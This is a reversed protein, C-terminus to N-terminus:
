RDAAFSWVGLRHTVCRRLTPTGIHGLWGRQADAQGGAWKCLHHERCRRLVNHAAGKAATTLLREYGERSGRKTTEWHVRVKFSTRAFRPV